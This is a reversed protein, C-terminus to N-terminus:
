GGQLRPIFLTEKATPDLEKVITGPRGNEGPVVPRYGDETLEKFQEEAAKAETENDVNFVMRSDGSHDMIRFVIM